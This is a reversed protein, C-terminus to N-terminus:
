RAFITVHRRRGVPSDGICIVGEESAFIRIITRRSLGWLAALDKPRYHKETAAIPSQSLFSAILCEDKKRALLIEPRPAREARSHQAEKTMASLVPTHIGRQVLLSVSQFFDAPMGWSRLSSHDRFFSIELSSGFCGFGFVRSSSSVDSWVRGVDRRFGAGKFFVM